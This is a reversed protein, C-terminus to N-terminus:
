KDVISAKGEMQISRVEDLHETEDFCLICM